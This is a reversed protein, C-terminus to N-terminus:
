RVQLPGRGDAAREGRHPPAPAMRLAQQLRDSFLARNPLGTLTDRYALDMIKSERAGGPRGADFPIGAHSRRDRGAGPPPTPASYDGGAIRRAIEALQQLPRTIGRAIVVSMAIAILV